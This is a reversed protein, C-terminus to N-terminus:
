MILSRAVSFCANLATFPEQVCPLAARTRPSTGLYVWIGSVQSRHCQQQQQQWVVVEVQHSQQQLLLVLVAEVEHAVATQRLQPLVDISGVGDLLRIVSNLTTGGNDPESSICRKGRRAAM